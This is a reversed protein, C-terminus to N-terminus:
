HSDELRPGDSPELEVQEIKDFRDAIRRASVNVKQVDDNAQQIHRALQDM